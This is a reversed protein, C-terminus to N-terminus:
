RVEETRATAQRHAERDLPGGRARRGLEEYVDSLTIQKEAMFVLLHFILDAVESTIRERCEGKAAVICEVAEEGVKKLIEDLGAQFLRCTYSGERPNQRREAVLAYLAELIEKGM